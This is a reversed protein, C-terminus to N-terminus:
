LPLRLATLLACEDGAWVCCGRVQLEAGDQVYKRLLRGAEDVRESASM